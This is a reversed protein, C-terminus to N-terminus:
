GDLGIRECMPVSLLNRIVTKNDAHLKVMLEDIMSVNDRDVFLDIDGRELDIRQQHDIALKILDDDQRSVININNLQRSSISTKISRFWGQYVHWQEENQFVRSPMYESGLRFVAELAGRDLPVAASFEDVYQLTVSSLNLDPGGDKVYRYLDRLWIRVRGWVEDWRTYEMCQASIFNGQATLLWAPTADLKARQFTVGPVFLTAPVGAAPVGGMVTMGPLFDRVSKQIQKAKDIAESGLATAFTLTFSAAAIANDPNKPEFSGM